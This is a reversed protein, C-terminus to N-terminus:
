NKLRLEFDPIVSRSVFATEDTGKLLLKYGQANGSISEVRSLNVVFSRHTRMIHDIPLLQSELSGITIRKLMKRVRSGEQLVINVYNGDSKALIFDRTDLKFDDSKLQTSIQIESHTPSLKLGNPLSLAMRQNRLNLRNFNLPVLIAIFLIGVLFTNRVEEFLYHWSWNDPNDYIIDRVLFQGIGTLLLFTALWCIERGVNWNSRWEPAFMMLLSLCLFVMGAVASHVMSIWFYSM